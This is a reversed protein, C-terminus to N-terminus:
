QNFWPEKVPENTYIEKPILSLIATKTNGELIFKVARIFYTYGDPVWLTESVLTLLTDPSWITGNPAHWGIVPIAQTLEKVIKTKLAWDATSKLNGKLDNYASIVERLPIKINPDTATAQGDSGPTQSVVRVWKPRELLDWAGKFQTQILTKSEDITGVPPQDINAQQLIIDGEATSSIVHNRIAALPSLFEAASQGRTVTARDFKATSKETDFKVPHIIRTGTQEGYYIALEHMSMGETQYPPKLQSKWFKFTNSWGHINVIDGSKTKDRVPKTLTGTLKLEGEIYVEAPTGRYPSVQWYLKPNDKYNVILACSFGDNPTDFTQILEGGTIRVSDGELRLDFPQTM